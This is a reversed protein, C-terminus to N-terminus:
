SLVGSSEPGPEGAQAVTVTGVRCWARPLLSKSYKPPFPIKATCRFYWCFGPLPFGDVEHAREGGSEGLQRINLNPGDLRIDADVAFLVIEGDDGLDLPSWDAKENLGPRAAVWAVHLLRDPLEGVQGANL